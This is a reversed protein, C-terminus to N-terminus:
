FLLFCKLLSRVVQEVQQWGAPLLYLLMLVFVLLSFPLEKEVAMLVNFVEYCRLHLLHYQTCYIDECAIHQFM